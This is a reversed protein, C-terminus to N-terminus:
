VRGDREEEKGKGKNRGGERMEMGEGGIGTEGEREFGKGEGKLPTRPYLGLFIKPIASAGLHAKACTPFLVCCNLVIPTM